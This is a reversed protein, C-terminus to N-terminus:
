HTQFYIHIIDITSQKDPFALPRFLSGINIIVPEFMVSVDVIGQFSKKYWTVSGRTVIKREKLNM